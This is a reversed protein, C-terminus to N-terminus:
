LAKLESHEKLCRELVKRSERVNIKPVADTYFQQIVQEAANASAASPQSVDLTYNGADLGVIPELTIETVDRNRSQTIKKSRKTAAEARQKFESAHTSDQAAAQEYFAALQDELQSAFTLVAGFQNLAM